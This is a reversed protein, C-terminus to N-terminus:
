GLDLLPIYDLSGGLCISVPVGHFSKGAEELCKQQEGSPGM